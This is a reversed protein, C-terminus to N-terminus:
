KSSWGDIFSLHLIKVFLGILKGGAPVIDEGCDAACM